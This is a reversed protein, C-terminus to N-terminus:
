FITLKGLKIKEPGKYAGSVVTEKSLTLTNLVESLKGSMAIGTVPIRKEGDFYYALRIEGGIYDNYLDVQLGSLYVCELHPEKMLQGCPTNGAEVNICGLAGTADKGLYQAFRNSGFNATLVGDKIIVVDKLTTGDRDFLASAPSGDIAGRMTVTLKDGVPNTQWKDGVSMLNSHLYVRSYDADAVIEEFMERIDYPNLIVPCDLTREPKKAKARASVDQVRAAIERMVAEKNFNGYEYTEFLEVSEKGTNCTPIAEISVTHKTQSKDAGLSNLVTSTKTVVFIELANIDCDKENCAYIVAKAVDAAIQKEDKGCLNSEIEGVFKGGGVLEYPEDFIMLAKSAAQAAKEEIDRASASSDIGFNSSGLKGDHKVYVSAQASSHESKRVTELNGHVFFLEYSVTDTAHVSYGDTGKQNSLVSKIIDLNKMGTEGETKIRTRRRIRAGM